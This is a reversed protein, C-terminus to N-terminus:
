GEIYSPLLPSMGIPISSRSHLPLLHKVIQSNASMASPSVSLTTEVSSSSSSFSSIPQATQVGQYSVNVRQSTQNKSEESPLPKKRLINQQTRPQIEFQTHAPYTKLAMSSRAISSPFLSVWHHFSAFVAAAIFVKSLSSFLVSLNRINTRVFISFLLPSKETVNRITTHM